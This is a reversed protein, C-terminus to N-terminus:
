EDEEIITIVPAVTDQMGMDVDAGISYANVSSYLNKYAANVTMESENWGKSDLYDINNVNFKFNVGIGVSPIASWRNYCAESINIKEGISVYIMNNFLFQANFDVVLNQFMATTLDLAAGIKMFNNNFLTGSAGMKITAINPFHTSPGSAPGINEPLNFNKGLNLISAGYRFDKIFGLDGQLYNFGLNAGLAWSVTENWAIGTNISLGIDLKDTIEKALGTHFSFSNGLNLEKFPLFTGNIYGSFVFMKSPILLGLQFASGVKHKNAEDMSHLFTYGLNLNVRQERAALSPNIVLSDAGAAFLAGGTVSKRGALAEPSSYDYLSEGGLPPNYASLASFITLGVLITTIVKKM